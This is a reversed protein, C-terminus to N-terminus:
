YAIGEFCSTVTNLEDGFGDNDSDLYWLKMDIAEEDIEGDCDNDLNDCLEDAEPYVKDNEDDCDDSNTIYGQPAVVSYVTKFADGFGDNDKDGWFFTFEPKNILSNYDSDFDDTANTDLKEPVNSLDNFDGSFDDTKDIDINEPVNILNNFDGSFDDSNDTDLNEPIDTLDNFNGSFDDTSDTDINIPVNRLDYYDGSFHKKKKIASYDEPLNKLDNYDGSFTNGAKSAYFAYPVSLIQNTGINTGDISISLFYPVNSWDINQFDEKNVSGIVLNIIGQQNVSINHKESFVENGTVSGQIITFLVEVNQNSKVNGADDRLVAQYNIGQPSQAFLYLSTLLGALLFSLKKM